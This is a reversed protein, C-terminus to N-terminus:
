EMQRFDPVYICASAKRLSRVMQLRFHMRELPSKGKKISMRNMIHAAYTVAHPWENSPALGWATVYAACMIFLIDILFPLDGSSRM